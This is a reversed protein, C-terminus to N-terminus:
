FYLLILRHQQFLPGLYDSLGSTHNLLQRVTISEHYPIAGVVESSLWKDLTDDLSLKGEEVLQLVTTAVFMKTISGIQFRDDSVVAAGTELNSVGSVGIWSGQPSIIAVSAGPIGGLSNDLAAQLQLALEDDVPNTVPYSSISDNVLSAKADEPIGVTIAVTLVVLSATKRLLGLYKM